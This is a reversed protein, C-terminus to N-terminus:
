ERGELDLRMVIADVGGPQYYRPRVGIGVFGLSEYLSLAVLNDARVELFVQTVGRTAAEEILAQMLRRGQGQGRVTPDVAITQIDGEEGVVLLGGYGHVLDDEGTLALYVRHDGTLEERMMERSWAEDGYVARELNWIEDLDTAAAPRLSWGPSM